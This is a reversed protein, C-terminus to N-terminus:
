IEEGVLQVFSFGEPTIGSPKKTGLLHDPHNSEFWRGRAGWLLVRRDKRILWQIERFTNIASDIDEHLHSNIPTTTGITTSVGCCGSRHKEGKSKCKNALHSAALLSVAAKFTDNKGM